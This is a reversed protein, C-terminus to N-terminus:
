SSQSVSTFCGKSRHGHWVADAHLLGFGHEAGAAVNRRCWGLSQLESRHQMLADASSEEAVEAALDHAVKGVQEATKKFLALVSENNRFGAWGSLVDEEFGPTGVIVNYRRAFRTRGDFSAM